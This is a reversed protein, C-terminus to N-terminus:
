PLCLVERTFMVYLWKEIDDRYLLLSECAHHFSRHHDSLAKLVVSKGVHSLDNWKVGFDTLSTTSDQTEFDDGFEKPELTNTMKTKLDQVAIEQTSAM